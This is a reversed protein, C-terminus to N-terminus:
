PGPVQQPPTVVDVLRPDLDQDGRQPDLGEALLHVLMVGGQATLVQPNGVVLGRPDLGIEGRRRELSQGLDAAREVAGQQGIRVESPERPVVDTTVTLRTVGRHHHRQLRDAPHRAVDRRVLHVRHRIQGLAIREVFQAGGILLVQDQGM